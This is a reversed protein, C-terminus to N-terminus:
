KEVRRCSLLSARTSQRICGTRTFTLLGLECGLPAGLEGGLLPGVEDGLAPGLEKGLAPGLASGLETGLVEGLAAGLAGGLAAGLEPGSNDDNKTSLEVNEDSREPTSTLSVSRRRTPKELISSTASPQLFNAPLLALKPSRMTFGAKAASVKNSPNPSDRM